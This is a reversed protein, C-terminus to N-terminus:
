SRRASQLTFYECRMGRNYEQFKERVNEYTWGKYDQRPVKMIQLADEFSLGGEGNPFPYNIAMYAKDM